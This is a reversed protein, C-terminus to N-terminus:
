FRKPPIALFGNSPPRCQEPHGCPPWIPIPVPNCCAAPMAPNRGRWKKGTARWITLFAGIMPADLEPDVGLKGPQRARTAGVRLGPAGCPIALYISRNPSFKPRQASQPPRHFFGCPQPSRKNMRGGALHRELREGALGWCNRRPSGIGTTARSKCQGLYTSLIAPHSGPTARGTTMSSPQQRRFSHRL